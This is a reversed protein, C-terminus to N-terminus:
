NQVRLAGRSFPVNLTIVRRPSTLRQTRTSTISSDHLHNFIRLLSSIGRVICEEDWVAITAQLTTEPEPFPMRPPMRTRKEVGRARFPAASAACAQVYLQHFHLPNNHKSIAAAPSWAAM